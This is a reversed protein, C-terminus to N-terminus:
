GRDTGTRCWATSWGAVPGGSSRPAVVRGRRGRGSPRCCSAGAAMGPASPRMVGREPSAWAHHSALVSLHLLVFAAQWVLLSNATFAFFQAVIAIGRLAGHRWGEAREARLALWVAVLYLALAGTFVSLGLSTHIQYAPFVGALLAVYLHPM